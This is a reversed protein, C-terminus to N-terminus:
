EDSVFPILRLALERVRDDQHDLFVMLEERDFDIEPDLVRVVRAYLALALVAKPPWVEPGPWDRRGEWYAIRQATWRLVEVLEAGTGWFVQQWLQRRFLSFETRDHTMWLSAADETHDFTLLVFGFVDGARVLALHNGDWSPDVEDLIVEDVFTKLIALLHQNKTRKVGRFVEDPPPCPGLQPAREPDSFLNMQAM